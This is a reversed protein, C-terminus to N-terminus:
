LVDELEGAGAALEGVVESERVGAEAQPLVEHHRARRPLLERQGSDDREVEPRGIDVRDHAESRTRQPAGLMEKATAREVEHHAEAAVYAPWSVWRRAL